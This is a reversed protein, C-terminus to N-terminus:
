TRQERKRRYVELGTLLALGILLMAISGPEPTGIVVPPLGLGVFGYGFAPAFHGDSGRDSGTTYSFAEVGVSSLANLLGDVTFDAGIYTDFSTSEGAALDGFGFVFYGGKDGPTDTINTDADQTRFVMPDPVAFPNTSTNLVTNGPGIPLLGGNVTTYNDDFFGPAVDWDLTRAYRVDTLTSATENTLVINVKFLKGDAASSYTQTVMLGNSLHVVSQASLGPGSATTTTLLASSFNTEGLGYVYGSAGSAAAGWGECLCGRIIADGNPGVFGVGGAGLGGSDDVGMQLLGTDLTSPTAMAAPAGLLLASTLLGGVLPTAKAKIATWYKM